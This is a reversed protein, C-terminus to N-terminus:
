FLYRPAMIAPGRHRSQTSVRWPSSMIITTASGDGQCRRAASSLSPPEHPVKHAAGPWQRIRHEGPLLERADDRRYCGGGLCGMTIEMGHGDWGAQARLTSIVKTTQPPSSSPSRSRGTCPTINDQPRDVLDVSLEPCHWGM